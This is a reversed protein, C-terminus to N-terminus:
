PKAPKMMAPKAPKAPKVMAESAESAERPISTKTSTKIKNTKKNPFQTTQFDYLVSGQLLPHTENLLNILKDPLKSLSTQTENEINYVVVNTKKNFKYTQPINIEIAGYIHEPTELELDKYQSKTLKNKSRIVDYLIRQSANAFCYLSCLLKEYHVKKPCCFNAVSMVTNMVDKTFKKVAEQRSESHYLKKVSRASDVIKKFIYLHYISSTLEKEIKYFENVMTTYAIDINQKDLKELPLHILTQILDVCYHPYKKFINSPVDIKEIEDVIHDAAGSIDYNDWGSEWDIDLCAFINRVINRFKIAIASSRYRKIEESISVLLLKIDAIPDYQNTMFGVDTHALSSYIPGGDLAASYSFGFDIIVPCYGHTPISFQNDKDLAYVFVTNPDCEKMLVNCSHLDYHTFRKKIQAISIAFLLQKIASFIVDDSINPNKIMTYLKKGDIFEMLLTDTQIPHKSTIEFPNELKRYNGNVQKTCLGLYKCYHPCFQRMETLSNMVIAEHLVLHNIYQSIKYAIVNNKINVLGAVGQKGQNPFKKIFQIDEDDPCGIIKKIKDYSIENMRSLIEEIM